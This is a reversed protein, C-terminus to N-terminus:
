LPLRQVGKFIVTNATVVVAVYILCRNRARRVAPSRLATPARRWKNHRNWEALDPSPIRSIATRGVSMDVTKKFASKPAEIRTDSYEFRTLAQLVRPHEVNLSLYLPDALSLSTSNFYKPSYRRREPRVNVDEPSPSEVTHRPSEHM